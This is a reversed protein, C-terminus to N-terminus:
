LNSVHSWSGMRLRQAIWKLNVSTRSRVKGALRVKELDGKRRRELEAEGWGLEKMGARVIREAVEEDTQIRERALHHEGIEKELREVLRAIFDQAGYFWGSRIQKDSTGGIER